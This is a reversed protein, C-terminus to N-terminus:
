AFRCMWLAQGSLSWEKFSAADYRSRAVASLGVHPHYQALDNHLRGLVLDEV